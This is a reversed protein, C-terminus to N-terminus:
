HKIEQLNEKLAGLYCLGIIWTFSLKVTTAAINDCNIKKLVTMNM